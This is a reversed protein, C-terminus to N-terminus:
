GLSSYVNGPQSTNRDYWTRELAAWDPVPLIKQWIEYRNGADDSVVVYEHSNTAEQVDAYYWVSRDSNDSWVIMDELLHDKHPHRDLVRNTLTMAEARTIYRDPQFTGDPYGNIFGHSAASLIMEEAWHGDIDSFYADETSVVEFFRSFLVAYEARTILTGPRFTGDPCGTIIGANYLTSVAANYWADSPVDPFPNTTSWYRNRSEETLLRFLITVTEARTIQKEPKVTGDPFGIVYAVHDQTNLDPGPEPEPEDPEFEYIEALFEWEVEASLDAIENGADIPIEFTLNVDKTNNRATFQGLYAGGGDVYGTYSTTSPTEGTVLSKIKTAISGDGGSFTATLTAPGAADEGFLATYDDNANVARVYMKVRCGSINTVKVRIQWQESDGPMASRVQFLDPYPNETTPEPSNEPGYVVNNFSFTKNSADFVVEPTSEAGLAYFVGGAIVLILVVALVKLLRKKM